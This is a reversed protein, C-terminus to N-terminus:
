WGMRKRLETVHAVHHAGHWAYMAVSMALDYTNGDEPHHYRRTFHAPQLTRLFVTWREHLADLLALTPALPAGRGDDLDAWLREDYPRISPVEETVTLKMRVYSNVHSDPLHHVVQRVTWGDERYPTDLQADDLGDVAARVKPPLAAITDIATALDAPTYSDQAQFPGIPFRPDPTPSM